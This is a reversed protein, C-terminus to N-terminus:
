GFGVVIHVLPPQSTVWGRRSLPLFKFCTMGEFGGLAEQRMLFPSGLGCLLTIQGRHGGVEARM